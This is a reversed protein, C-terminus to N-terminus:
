GGVKVFKVGDIEIIKLDGREGLRYIWAVTKGTKQAYSRVTMLKTIDVKLEKKEM